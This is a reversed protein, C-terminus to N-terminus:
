RKEPKLCQLGVFHFCDAEDTVRHRDISSIGDGRTFGEGYAHWSWGMRIAASAVEKNSKAPGTRVVLANWWRPETTSFFDVPMGSKAHVALKNEAGWAEHGDKNLRKTIVGLTLLADLAIDAAPRKVEHKFMDTPDVQTGDRSVLLIEIDKVYSRRRRISGAIIIRSCHPELFKEFKQAIPVAEALPYRKDM